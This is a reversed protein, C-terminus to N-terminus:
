QYRTTGDGKQQEKGALVPEVAVLEVEDHSPSMRVEAVHVLRGESRKEVGDRGGDEAHRRCPDPDQRGQCEARDHQQRGLDGAFEAAPSSRLCDDGERDRCRAEEVGAM